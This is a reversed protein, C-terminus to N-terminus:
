IAEIKKLALGATTRVNDDPDELAQRLASVAPEAALGIQLFAQAVAQRMFESEDTLRTALEPVAPAAPPGISALAYAAAVRVDGDDLSAAIVPVARADGIQGLAWVASIRVQHSSDNGALEILKFVASAAA